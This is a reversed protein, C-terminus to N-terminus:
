FPTFAIRGFCAHLASQTENVAIDLEDLFEPAVIRTWTSGAM